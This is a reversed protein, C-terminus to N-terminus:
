TLEHAEYKDKGIFMIVAFRVDNRAAFCQAQRYRSLQDLAEQKVAQLLKKNKEDGKKIYKIEWVWEYRLDPLLASRQMYMDIYGNEVERETVPVYLKSQFLGNLLMIKIYKEDFHELDRHSLRCFVNRSVYDIYPTLNGRYALERIANKQETPDIM